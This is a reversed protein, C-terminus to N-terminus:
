YDSEIGERIHQMTKETEALVNSCNILMTSYKQTDAENKYRLMHELSAWYDMAVTRLQIEVPVYEIKHTLFVPAKIVLHLSRYGNGKPGSIYDKRMLLTIDPQKLLINEILYIDDIFNCIVRIGAIDRIHERASNLSVPVGYRQLKKFISNIGKIRCELHHIPNHKRSIQLEEDLVELKTSVSKMAASYIQMLETFERFSERPSGSGAVQFFSENQQTIDPIEIRQKRELIM